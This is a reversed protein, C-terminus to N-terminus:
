PAPGILKDFPRQGTQGKAVHKLRLAGLRADVTVLEDRAEFYVAQRGLPCCGAACVVRVTSFLGLRTTAGLFPGALNM